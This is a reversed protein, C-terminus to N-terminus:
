NTNNLWYIIREIQEWQDGSFYYPSFSKRTKRDYFYYRYAIYSQDEIKNNTTNLVRKNGFFVDRRLIYRHTTKDPYEENIKGFVALKYDFTYKKFISDLIENYNELNNNTKAIFDDKQDEYEDEVDLLTRNPDQYKYREVLITTSHIDDPIWQQAYLSATM